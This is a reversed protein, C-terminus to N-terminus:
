QAESPPPFTMGEGRKWEFVTHDGSDTIIIREAGGLPGPPAITARRAHRVATKADVHQTVPFHWGDALFVWVSFEDDPM